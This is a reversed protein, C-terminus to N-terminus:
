LSDPCRFASLVGFNFANSVSSARLEFSATLDNDTMSFQYRDPGGARQLGTEELLRFLAWVGSHDLRRTSGELTTISVEATSAEAKSPWEFDITRPPGHRYVIETDDLKFTSRFANPDLAAPTVSFRVLPTTGGEAFFSNQITTARAFQALTDASIGLSESDITAARLRSGQRVVFPKLYDEFFTDLTGKPAFFDSFDQINAEQQSNRFIPYRQFLASDCVPLVDRRWTENIESYTLRMLIGWTAGTVERMISRVPDPRLASDNRLEAMADNNPNAVRQAVFQYAATSPQPATTISSVTGFLNGFLEQTRTIRPAGTAADTAMLDNLGRFAQSIEHGPWDMGGLAQAAAAEAAASSASAVADGAANAVAGIPSGSFGGAGGGVNWNNEQGPIPLNTNQRVSEVLRLMPSEPSAMLQLINQASVLDNIPAVGVQNLMTRWYRIYDSIYQRAVQRILRKTLEDDSGGGGVVWDNGMEERVIRQLDVLFYDYFGQRTFVGPIRMIREGGTRANTITLGSAGGVLALLDFPALDARQLGERVFRSYIQDTQPVRTIRQRATSIVGSNLEAPASLRSILDNVMSDMDQRSNPDLAFALQVEEGVAQEVRSPDLRDLDGLMLYSELLERLGSTDVAGPTRAAAVIRAGLRDVVAPELVNNLLSQYTRDTAPGLTATASVGAFGIWDWPSSAFHIERLDRGAQMIPLVSQFNTNGRYNALREELVQAAEKTRDARADSSQYAAFWLASVGAVLGIAAAYGLGHLAALKAELKRNTGVMGQERFIVDTLLSRIFFAKGRGSFAPTQAASLGFDRSFAGIIRDIPTGEQTGSTFYVGRFIPQTEYRNPRFIGNLFAKLTENLAGFEQPFMFIRCRRGIDREAHMREHVRADVRGALEKFQTDFEKGWEASPSDAPFTMGWVQNREEANLTDFFDTFGSILDCKTVLVYVPIRVGFSKMLEQLRQKMAEAHRKRDNPGSLLIDSLSIALLVGNVPRRRRHKKLISLFGNWATRDADRNVDQTSYRGATDILVAEDTFWWDCYRTGGIGSIVDAGLREALPFDLGSNKLVTTKGSGPPGIIIYWPLQFLYNRGGKNRVAQEKLVDMADEFRDRIIEIEEDSQTDGMSVLEESQLLSNILKANARRALVFRILAVLFAVLFISVITIVRVGVGGLPTVNMVTVHPGLFWILLSIAALGATVALSRLRFLSSLFAIVM